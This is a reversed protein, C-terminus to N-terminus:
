SSIRVLERSDVREPLPCRLGATLPMITTYKVPTMKRSRKSGCIHIEEVWRGHYFTRSVVMYCHWPFYEASTRSSPNHDRNDTDGVTSLEPRLGPPYVVREDTFQQIVSLGMQLVTESLRPRSTSALSHM